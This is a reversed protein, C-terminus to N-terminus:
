KKAPKRTRPKLNAIVFAKPPADAGAASAAQPQDDSGVPLSAATTPTHRNRQPLTKDAREKPLRRKTALYKRIVDADHIDATSQWTAEKPGLGAWQVLYQYSGDALRRHQLLKDVYHVDASADAPRAAITDIRKLQDRPVDRQFIGGAMDQLTYGTVGHRVIRYPGVFPPSNKDSRLADRLMVMSGVPLTKADTFHRKDFTADAQSKVSLQRDTVVPFVEKWCKQNRELWKSLDDLKAEERQAPTAQACEAAYHDTAACFKCPPLDNLADAGEFVDAVRNFFLTFPSCNTLYRYKANMMLQVAPVCKIWDYGTLDVLKRVLESAVGGDREVRGQLRPQYAAIREHTIGYEKKIINVVNSVLAKEHDSRLTHPPGFLGFLKWLIDALEPAERTKTPYLLVFNTFTDAICLLYQFGDASRVHSTQYDISIDDWPEMRGASISRLPHYTVNGRTWRQCQACEAIRSKILATMGPWLYGEARLRSHVARSGFHGFAHAWDVLQKAETESSPARAKSKPADPPLPKSVPREVMAEQAKFTPEELVEKRLNTALERWEPSDEMVPVDELVASVPREESACKEEELRAELAIEAEMEASFAEQLEAVNVELPPLADKRVGWKFGYRSLLDPINNTWGPVHVVDLDYESLTAMWMMLTNSLKKQSWMYTLAAHDTLVRVKRGVIFDHYTMLGFVMALLELRYVSYNREYPKLSRSTFSIINEQCPRDDAHRPQWLVVGVGRRSADFALAFPKSYDAFNLYPADRIANRLTEWAYDHFPQWKWEKAHALQRLDHELDAYHRVFQRLYGCFGLFALLSESDTPKEWGMMTKIKEPDCQVGDKTVVNGLAALKTRGIKAKPPGHCRMNWKSCRELVLRCHEVHEEVSSSGVLINDLYCFVFDMDAFVTDMLRQAHAPLSSIGFPTGRFVYRRGRHSFCTKHISNASMQIQHYFSKLDFESFIVCNAFRQYLDTIRPLPYNDPVTHANHKKVDSCIRSKTVVGSPTRTLSCMLSHHWSVGKTPEEPPVHRAVDFLEVVGSKLWEDMKEDYYGQMHRKIDYEKCYVPVTGPDHRWDFVALPHKIFPGADATAKVHADLMAAIKDRAENYELVEEPKLGVDQAHFRDRRECVDEFDVDIETALESPFRIPLANVAFMDFKFMLDRGMLVEERLGPVVVLWQQTSRTGLSITATTKAVMTSPTLLGDQFGLTQLGTWPAYELNLAKAVRDSIMTCGTGSDHTFHVQVTVGGYEIEGPVLIKPPQWLPKDMELQAGTSTRGRVLEEKGAALDPHEMKIFPLSSMQTEFAEIPSSASWFEAPWDRRLGETPDDVLVIPKYIPEVISVNFAHLVDLHSETMPPKTQVNKQHRQQAELCRVVAEQNGPHVYPFLHNQSFYSM